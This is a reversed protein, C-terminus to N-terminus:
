VKRKARYPTKREAVGLSQEPLPELKVVLRCGVAEAYKRLTTLSPSHTRRGGASELRSVAPVKTRMREAVEAQTLRAALRANLLEDFLSFEDELAAYEVTFAPDKRWKEILESHTKM